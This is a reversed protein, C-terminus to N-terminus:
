TIGLLEALSTHLWQNVQGTNTEVELVVVKCERDETSLWMNLAEIVEDSTVLLSLFLDEILPVDIASAWQGRITDFGADLDAWCLLLELLHVAPWHVLEARAPVAVELVLWVLRDHMVGDNSTPETIVHMYPLTSEGRM